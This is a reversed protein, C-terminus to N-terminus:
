VMEIRRRKEAFKKLDADGFRRKLNANESKSREM